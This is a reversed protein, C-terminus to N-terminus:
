RSLSDLAPISWGLRRANMAEFSAWEDKFDAALTMSTSMMKAFGSSFPFSRALETCSARPETSALLTNAITAVPPVVFKPITSSRRPM